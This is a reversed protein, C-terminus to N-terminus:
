KTLINIKFIRFKNKIVSFIYRLMFGLFTFLHYKYINFIRLFWNKCDFCYQSNLFKINLLWPLIFKLLLKKKESCYVEKSLHNELLQKHLLYLYNELFVTLLDYGGKKVADIGVFLEQNNIYVNKSM